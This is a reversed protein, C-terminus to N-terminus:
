FKKPVKHHSCIIWCHNCVPTAHVVAVITGLLGVVCHNYDQKCM